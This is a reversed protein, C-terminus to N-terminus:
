QLNSTSVDELGENSSFLSLQSILRQCEQLKNITDSVEQRYADSNPEASYEISQKQAKAAQLLEKLSQPQDTMNLYQLLLGISVAAIVVLDLRMQFNDKATSPSIEM